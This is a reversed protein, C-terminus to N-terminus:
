IQAYEKKLWIFGIVTLLLVTIRSVVRSPYLHITIKNLYHVGNINIQETPKTPYFGNIFVSERGPHVLEELWSSRTQDRIYTYADEPPYNLRFQLLVTNFQNEYYSMTEERSLNTYYARRYISETDAPEVSQLSNPPPVPFGPSPLALYTAVLLTLIILVFYLFPRM